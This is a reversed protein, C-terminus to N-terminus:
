YEGMADKITDRLSEGSRDKPGGGGHGGRLSSAARKAKENEMRRAKHGPSEAKPKHMRAKGEPSRMLAAILKDHAM